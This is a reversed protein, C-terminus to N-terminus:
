NLSFWFTFYFIFHQKKRPQAYIHNFFYGNVATVSLRVCWIIVLTFALTFDSKEWINQSEDFKIGWMNVSIKTNESETSKSHKRTHTLWWVVSTSQCLVATQDKVKKQCIQPQEWTSSHHRHDWVFSIIIDSAAPINVIVQTSGFFTYSKATVPTKLHTELIM